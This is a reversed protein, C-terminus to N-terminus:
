GYVTQALDRYYSTEQVGQVRQAVSGNKFLLMTPISRVQHQKSFDPHEDCDVVELVVGTPLAAKINGIRQKLVQCPGCWTASFLLIAHTHTSVLLSPDLCQTM